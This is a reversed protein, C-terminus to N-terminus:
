LPQVSPLPSEPRKEQSAAAVAQPASRTGAAQHLLYDEYLYVLEKDDLSRKLQVAAARVRELMAAADDQSLAIGYAAFKAKIAATGSHKGIVIQRELGVEEPAFVEYTRPDKLTGDAHIGSEHAFINSGVIPKWAPLQRGSARAVYAAIERLRETKFGPDVGHLHKLAMVVEELAANGAREGLGCITADVWGAGAKVAALANATALGFDNHGHFELELDIKEKLWALREFTTFPDLVGVTDCYRLREAGLERALFAFELLFVPDARSADEAGVTVRLGHDMAYLCAQRLRELVWQHSQGLKYRIQIPSVPASIHVDRVGCALSARIDEWLMRNWTSIRCKLGMRVIAKIAQQEIEGMAPTGAEIQAVGLRDLMRAITVKEELNFAVGPAQEGDRLTTDVVRVRM